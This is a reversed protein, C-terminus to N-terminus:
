VGLAGLCVALARVCAVFTGLAGPARVCVGFARLTDLAGFCVVFATLCSGFARLAGLARLHGGLASM